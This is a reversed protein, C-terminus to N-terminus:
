IYTSISYEYYIGKQVKKTLLKTHLDMYLVDLPTHPPPAPSPRIQLFSFINAINIHTNQSYKYLRILYLQGYVSGYNIHNHPDCVKKKPPPFGLFFIITAIRVLGICKKIERAFLVTPFCKNVQFLKLGGGKEAASAPRSGVINTHKSMM